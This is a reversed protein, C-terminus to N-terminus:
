KRDPKSHEKKPETRGARGVVDWFAYDARHVLTNILSREVFQGEKSHAACVHAIEEPLGVTLAVYAGYITHRLSPSGYQSSREGWRARNEPDYEFPKGLDHCLGAAWLLDRNVDLPGFVSEVAELMAVAMNAVGRLHHAQTYGPIELEDPAGSCPMEDIRTFRTQALCYAWAEIVKERLARDRINNVEPLSEVVGKAIEAPIRM